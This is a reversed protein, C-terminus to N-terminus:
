RDDDGLLFSFTCSRRGVLFQARQANLTAWVLTTFRFKQVQNCREAPQANHARTCYADRARRRPTELFLLETQSIRVRPSTVDLFHNMSGRGLLDSGENVCWQSRGGVRVRQSAGAWSTHAHMVHMSVPTVGTPNTRGEACYDCGTVQGEQNIL